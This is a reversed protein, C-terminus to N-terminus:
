HDGRYDQKLIPKPGEKQTNEPQPETETSPQIGNNEMRRLINSVRKLREQSNEDPLTELLSEYDYGLQLLINNTRRLKISEITRVAKEAVDVLYKDSEALEKNKKELADIRDLLTRRNFIAGTNEHKMEYYRVKEKLEANVQQLQYVDKKADMWNRHWADAKKELEEIVKEKHEAPLFRFETMETGEQNRKRSKPVGDNKGM